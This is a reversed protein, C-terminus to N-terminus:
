FVSKLYDSFYEILKNITSFDEEIGNPFYVNKDKMKVPLWKEGTNYEINELITNYTQQAKDFNSFNLQTRFAMIEIANMKKVRFEKDDIVLNEM